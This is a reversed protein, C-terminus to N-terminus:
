AAATAGGRQFRRSDFAFPTIQNDFNPAAPLAFDLNRRQLEVQVGDNM